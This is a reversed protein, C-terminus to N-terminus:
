CKNSHLRLGSTKLESLFEEGKLIFDIFFNLKEKESTGHKSQMM